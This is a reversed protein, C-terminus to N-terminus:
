IRESSKYVIRGLIFAGSFSEADSDLRKDPFRRKDTNDSALWWLGADRKLRKIVLEGEYNVAFVEGDKPEIAKTNIVVTDGDFLGPEMSAGSVKVAVLTAPSIKRAKFWDARFFLPSSEENEYEIRYGSVGAQLRITVRKISVYSDTDESEVPTSAGIEEPGKGTALWLARCELVAALSAVEGSGKNLGNELKSVTVQTIGAKKALIEQSMKLKIRRARVREGVTTM